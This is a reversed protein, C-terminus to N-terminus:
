FKRRRLLLMACGILLLGALIYFIVGYGGTSPLECTILTNTITYDRGATTSDQIYIKVNQPNSSGQRGKVLTYEGNSIIIKIGNYEVTNLEGLANYSFAAADTSSDVLQLSYRESIETYSAGKDYIGLYKGNTKSKLYFTPVYVTIGEIDFSAYGGTMEVIWIDSTDIGSTVGYTYVGSYDDVTATQSFEVEDTVITDSNNQIVYGTYTTLSNTEEQAGDTLLIELGNKLIGTWSTVTRATEDVTVTGNLEDNGTIRWYNENETIGTYSYATTYAALSTLELIEYDDESGTGQLLEWTYTWSNSDNLVETDVRVYIYGNDENYYANVYGDTDYSYGDTIEYTTGGSTYTYKTTGDGLDEVTLDSSGSDVSISKKFLGVTVESPTTDILNKNDWEKTVKMTGAVASEYEWEPVINCSVALNSSSAGREMYYIKLTHTGATLNSGLLDAITTTSWANTSGSRTITVEGSSFNIQGELATHVGGMDLVMEDDISIWIDDDGSFNFIMDTSNIQNGYQTGNNTSLVTATDNPLYFSLEITVGFWYNVKGNSPTYTSSTSSYSNYPLFISSSSDNNYTQPSSYVYFRGDEQQYVAANESSDYSYYGYTSSNVDGDYSFLYNAEGVYYTGMNYVNNRTSTSFLKNIIDEDFLGQYAGNYFSQSSFSNNGTYYNWSKRGTVLGISKETYTSTNFFVFSNGLSNLLTTDGALPPLNYFSGSDSWEESSIGDQVLSSSYLNFLESFDFMEIKIFRSTDETSIINSDTTDSVCDYSEAIWDAYFVNDNELNITATVSGDEVNYYEGTAINIWGVLKYNYRTDEDERGLTVTVAARSETGNDVASVVTFITDLDDDTPLNITVNGDEDGSGGVAATYRLATSSYDKSTSNGNSNDLSFVVGNDVTGIYRIKNKVPITYGTGNDQVLLYWTDDIKVYYADSASTLAFRPRYRFCYKTTSSSGSSRSSYTTYKVGNITITSTTDLYGDDLAEDLTSASICVSLHSIPILIQRYGVGIYDDISESQVLVQYDVDFYLEYYYVPNYYINCRPPTYGSTTDTVQVYWDSGVQVYYAFLCTSINTTSSTSITAEANPAYIFPCTLTSSSDFAYGSSGLADEFYSVPVLYYTTGDNDTYSLADTIGKNNPTDYESYGAVKTLSSDYIWLYFEDVTSTDYTNDGITVIGTIANADGATAESALTTGILEFYLCLLVMMVLMSFCILVVALHKIRHQNKLKKYLSNVIKEMVDGRSGLDGLLM